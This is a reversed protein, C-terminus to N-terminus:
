YESLPVSSATSWEFFRASTSIPALSLRLIESISLGDASSIGTLLVKIEWALCKFADASRIASRHDIPRFIDQAVSAAVVWLPTLEFMSGNACFYLAPLTKLMLRSLACKTVSEKNEPTLDNFWFIHACKKWVHDTEICCICHNQPCPIRQYRWIYVITMIKPDGLINRKFTIRLLISM